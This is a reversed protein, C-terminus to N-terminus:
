NKLPYSHCATSSLLTGYKVAAVAPVAPTAAPTVAPLAAPVAAPVAPVAAPPAQHQPLYCRIAAPTKKWCNNETIPEKNTNPINLEERLGNEGD